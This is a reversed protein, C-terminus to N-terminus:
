NKLKQFITKKTIKKTLIKTKDTNKNIKNIKKNVTLFYVTDGFECFHLKRLYKKSDKMEQVLPM